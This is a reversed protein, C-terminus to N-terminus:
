ASIMSVRLPLQPGAKRDSKLLPRTVVTSVLGIDEDPVAMEFKFSRLIAFLLAKMRDVVVLGHALQAM